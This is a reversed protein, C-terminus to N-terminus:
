CPGSSPSSAPLEKRVLYRERLSLRLPEIHQNAQHYPSRVEAAGALCDKPRPRGAALLAPSCSTFRRPSSANIGVIREELLIDQIWECVSLELWNLGRLRRHNRPSIGKEVLADFGNAPIPRCGGIRGRPFVSAASRPATRCVAESSSSASSVGSSSGCFNRWTRKPIIM